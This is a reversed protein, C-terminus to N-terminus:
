LRNELVAGRPPLAVLPLQLGRINGLSCTRKFGGETKTLQECVSQKWVRKGRSARSESDLLCGPLWVKTALSVPLLLRDESGGGEGLCSPNNGMLNGEGRGKESALTGTFLHM